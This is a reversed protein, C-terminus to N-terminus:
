QGAGRSPTTHAQAEELKSDDVRLLMASGKGVKVAKGSSTLTVEGLLETRGSHLITLDSFGYAGHANVSFLWFAQPHANEDITGRYPTGSDQGVNALVGQSTYKGVVQSGVIVPGGAGYSIQDGGIQVQNDTYESSTLQPVAAFVAAESAVARLNTTIPITVDGLRVQDFQFSIKSEDSGKGPTIADVVHGTVRSGARLIKGMGLSVDQLITATIADGSVSKDSRLTSNLSVPIITGTPISEASRTNQEQSPQYDQTRDQGTGAHLYMPLMCLALSLMRFNNKM